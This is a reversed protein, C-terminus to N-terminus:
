FPEGSMLIELGDEAAEISTGARCLFRGLTPETSAYAYASYVPPQTSPELQVEIRYGLQAAEKNLAHFRLADDATM